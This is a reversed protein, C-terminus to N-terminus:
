LSQSSIQIVYIQCHTQIWFLYTVQLDILCLFVILCFIPASAEYFFIFSHGILVHLHAWMM